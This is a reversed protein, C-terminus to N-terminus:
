KLRREFKALLEVFKILGLHSRCVASGLRTKSSFGV